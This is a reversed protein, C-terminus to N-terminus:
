TKRLAGPRVAIPPGKKTFGRAIGHDTHDASVAMTRYKAAPSAGRKSELPVDNMGAVSIINGVVISEIAPMPTASSACRNPV